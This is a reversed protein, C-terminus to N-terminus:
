PTVALPSFQERTKLTSIQQCLRNDDKSDKLQCVPTTVEYRVYM